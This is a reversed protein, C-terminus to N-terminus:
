EFEAIPMGEGKFFNQLKKTSPIFTAATIGGSVLGSIVPVAKTGITFAGKVSSKLGIMQVIKLIIRRSAGNKIISKAIVGGAMKTVNKAALQALVTSAPKVGMMFGIYIILASMTTDDIEGTSDFIDDEWGYLYMLKQVIIFVHVYYNLLDGPISIGMAIGGPLGSVFSVGTTLLAENNIAKDAFKNIVHMPVGAEIPGELLIQELKDKYAKRFVSRLYNERDVQVGPISSVKGLFVSFLNNSEGM